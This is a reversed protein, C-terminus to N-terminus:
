QEQSYEDGAHRRDHHTHQRIPRSAPQDSAPPAPRWEHSSRPLGNAPAISFTLTSVACLMGTAVDIVDVTVVALSRGRRVVHAEARAPGQTVGRLYHITLDATAVSDTPGVGNLVARGAAVDVLTAMLGGQLGGRPNKVRADLDLEIALDADTDTVDRFSMQQLLHEGAAIVRGHEAQAGPAGDPDPSVVPSSDVTGSGIM